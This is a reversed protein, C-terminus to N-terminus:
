LIGQFQMQVDLEKPQQHSNGYCREVLVVLATSRPASLLVWSAWDRGSDYPRMIKYLAMCIDVNGQLCGFILAGGSDLHLECHVEDWTKDIESEKGPHWRSQGFSVMLFKM